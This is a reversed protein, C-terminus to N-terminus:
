DTLYPRSTILTTNFKDFNEKITLAKLTTELFNNDFGLGNLNKGIKYKLPKIAKDKVNLEM